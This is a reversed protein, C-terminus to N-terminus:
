REELAKMLRGRNVHHAKPPNVKDWGGWRASSFVEAANYGVAEGTRMVPLGLRRLEAAVAQPDDLNVPMPSRPLIRYLQSPAAWTFPKGGSVILRVDEEPFVQDLLSERVPPPLRDIKHEGDLYLVVDGPELDDGNVVWAGAERETSTLLSPHPERHIM